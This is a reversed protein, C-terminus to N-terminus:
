INNVSYVFLTNRFIPTEQSTNTHWTKITKDVSFCPFGKMFQRMSKELNKIKRVLEFRLTVM